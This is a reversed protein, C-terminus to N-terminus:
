AGSAKAAAKAANAAADAYQEGSYSQGAVAYSASTLKSAVPGEEAAALAGVKASIGQKMLNAANGRMQGSIVSAAYAAAAPNAGAAVPNAGAAAPGAGAAAAPNAGAAANANAAVGTPAASGRMREMMADRTESAAAARGSVPARSPIRRASVRKENPVYVKPGAPAQEPAPQAGPRQPRAAAAAAAAAPPKGQGSWNLLARGVRGAVNKVGNKMREFFGPKKAPAQPAAAAEPVAEEPQPAAPAKKEPEEDGWTRVFAFQRVPGAQLQTAGQDQAAHQEAAQQAPAAAAALQKAQEPAASVPAPAEPTPTMPVAQAEDSMRQLPETKGQLPEDEEELQATAGTIVGMQRRQAVAKPAAQAMQALKLQAATSPRNDVFPPAAAAGTSAKLQGAQAPREPAKEQVTEQM